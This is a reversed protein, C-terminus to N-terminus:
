RAEDPGIDWGSGMPRPDGEFDSSPVEPVRTRDAGADVCSSAPDLYFAMTPDVGCDEALRNQDGGPLTIDVGLAVVTSGGVYSHIANHVFLEPRALAWAYSTSVPFSPAVRGSFLINNSFRGITVGTGIAGTIAIRLGTSPGVFGGMVFNSTVQLDLPRTVSEYQLLLGGAEDRGPGSGGRIVNNRISVHDYTDTVVIGWCLTDCSGIGITNDVVEAGGGAVVVGIALTTTDSQAVIQNQTLMTRRSPTGFLGIATQVTHQGSFLFTSNDIHVPSGVDYIGYAYDPPNSTPGTVSRGLQITTGIIRPTNTGPGAEISIGYSHGSANANPAEVFVNRVTPAAGGYLTLTAADTVALSELRMRVIETDPTIDPNAITGAPNENSARLVTESPDGTARWTSPDHGGLLSAGEILTIDEDYTGTAIYIDLNVGPVITGAIAMADGIREFPADMTGPGAPTGTRESVFTGRGNCALDDGRADAGACSQEIDDGCIPIANPHVTSDDDNCDEPVCYGDGDNDCAADPYTADSLMAGDLWGVSAEVSADRSAADVRAGGDVLAGAADPTEELDLVLGCGTSLGVVLALLSRAAHDLM